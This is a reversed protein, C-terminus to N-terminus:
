EMRNLNLYYVKMGFRILHRQSILSSLEHKLLLVHMLIKLFKTLLPLFNRYVPIKKESVLNVLHFFTIVKLILTCHIIFVNKLYKEVSQYFLYLDITRTLFHKSDKKHVPVVNAKKWKNVPTLMLCLQYMTMM